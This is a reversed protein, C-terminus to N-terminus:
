PVDVIGTVTRGDSSILQNGVGVHAIENVNVQINCHREITNYHEVIVTITRNSSDGNYIKILDLLLTYVADSRLVEIPTTSTVEYVVGQSDSVIGSAFFRYDFRTIVGSATAGVSVKVVQIKYVTGEGSFTNAYTTGDLDFNNTDVNTITFYGNAETTGLVGEIYVRNGTALGHNAVTCRVKSSTGSATATVKGLQKRPNISISKM